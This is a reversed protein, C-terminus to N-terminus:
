APERRSRFLTSASNESIFSRTLNFRTRNRRSQMHDLLKVQGNGGLIELAQHLEKHFGLSQWGSTGRSSNSVSRGLGVM